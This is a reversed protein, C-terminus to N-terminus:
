MSCYPQGINKPNSKWFSRFPSQGLVQIHVLGQLDMRRRKIMDTSGQFCSLSAKKKIALASAEPSLRVHDFVGLPGQFKTCRGMKPYDGTQSNLGWFM